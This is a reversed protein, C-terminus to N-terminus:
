KREEALRYSLSRYREVYGQVRRQRERSAVLHKLCRGGDKLEAGCRSCRGRKQMRLQYRRQKSLGPQSTFEDHIM